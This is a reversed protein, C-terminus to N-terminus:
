DSSAPLEDGSNTARSKQRRPGTAEEAPGARPRKLAAVRPAARSPLRLVGQGDVAWVSVGHFASCAEGPAWLQVAPRFHSPLAPTLSARDLSSLAPRTIMPRDTQTGRSTVHIIRGPLYGSPPWGPPAALFGGGRRRRQLGDYLALAERMAGMVHAEHDVLGREAAEQGLCPDRGASSEGAAVEDPGVGSSDAEPPDPAGGDLTM